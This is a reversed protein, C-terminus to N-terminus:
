IQQPEPEPTPVVGPELDGLQKEVTEVADATDVDGVIVINMNNPRYYENYVQMIDERKMNAITDKYGIIPNRYPHKEIILKAFEDDLHQEPNNFSSRQEELIVQLEKTIEEQDFQQNKLLDVMYPLMDKFKDAPVTTYFMTWDHSTMANLEGGLNEVTKHFSGAPQLPTGKFWIHEFIHAVGEKGPQEYRSGVKVWFQITVLPNAHNELVTVTLGNPLETEFIPQEAATYQTDVFRLPDEYYKAIIFGAAIILISLIIASIIGNKM